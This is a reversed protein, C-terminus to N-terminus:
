ATQVPVTALTMLVKHPLQAVLTWAAEEGVEACLDMFAESAFRVRSPQTPDAAAIIHLLHMINGLRRDIHPDDNIM